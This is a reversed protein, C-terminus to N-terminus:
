FSISLKLSNNTFGVVQAFKDFSKQSVYVHFFYKWFSKKILPESKLSSPPTQKYLSGGTGKEKKLSNAPIGIRETLRLTRRDTQTDTQHEIGM